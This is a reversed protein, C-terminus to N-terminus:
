KNRSWALYVLLAFSEETIDAARAAQVAEELAVLVTTPTDATIMPLDQTEAAAFEADTM